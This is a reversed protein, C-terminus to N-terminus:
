PHAIVVLTRARAVATELCIKLTAPDLAAFSEDLITLSADQLLARALFVRSREGHSLQWGTEGVHQMLGGPMRSLLGGLGLEACLAQALALDEATPPWNRGMLLNFALSGSLIHNEHFQPAETALQHWGLGLTPRDLGHLLLLGSDPRRLGTILAALTSKGGGSPGELLIREGQHITLDLQELIPRGGHQYRFVLDSADLVKHRTNEASPQTPPPVASPEVPAGGARFLDSVLSWAVCAQSLSAIGSSISAFARSAMMIGGLSIALAAPSATGAIFAPALGLFAVITWGGASGATVPAITNDLARSLGLYDRLVRDEAADRRRPPEQALRTRHGIMHEILEHTMDLRAMSWARLQRYYRFCVAVLAALWILLAALHLYGAAGASLIWGAFTLEVVAVIVAMGGGLVLSELAQSEMVRGIIQGAGQHRIADIDIRLAGALLRQKLMRGLDLAFTAELWGASLRLPVGLLLMLQWAVLWALSLRGGLVAAGILGWGGIEVLYMGMLLVVVSGLRRMLGAQSMQAMFPATAPLRMIWCETFAQAALRQRLMVSRVQERRASRVGAKDLLRDLDRVMPAEYQATAATSIARARRWHLRLDPVILAISDGKAKFLLLFRAEGTTPLALVLPCAQLLGHDLDPVPFEVPEAELGLCGAAWEIWNGAYVSADPPRIDPIGIAGVAAARLGTRLALAELAQVLQERPWSLRVLDEDCEARKPSTHTAFTLDPGDM